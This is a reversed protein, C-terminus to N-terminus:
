NDFFWYFLGRKKNVSDFSCDSKVILYDRLSSYNKIGDVKISSIRKTGYLELHTEHGYRKEWRFLGSKPSIVEDIRQITNINIAKKIIFGTIELHDNYLVINRRLIKFLILPYLIYLILSIIHSIGIDKFSVHFIEVFGGFSPLLMAITLFALRSLDPKINFIMPLPIVPLQIVAVKESNKTEGVQKNQISNDYQEIKQCVKCILRTGAAYQDVIPITDGCLECKAKSTCDFCQPNEATGYNELSGLIKLCKVCKNNPSGAKM